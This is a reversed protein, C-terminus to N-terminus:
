RSEEAMEPLGAGHIPNGEEQMLQIRRPVSDPHVTECVWGPRKRRYGFVYTLGTRSDTITAQYANAQASIIDRGRQYLLRSLARQKGTSRVLKIVEVGALEDETWVKDRLEPLLQDAQGNRLAEVFDSRMRAALVSWTGILLVFVLVVVLIVIHARNM